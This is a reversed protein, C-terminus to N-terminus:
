KAQFTSKMEQLNLGMHRATENFPQQVVEAVQKAILLQMIAQQKESAQAHNHFCTYFVKGKGISAVAMLPLGSRESRMLVKGNTVDMLESWGNMDFHVETAPGIIGRLDPDEVFAVTHGRSGTNGAFDFAGPFAAVLLSSALDSAYVVGGNEVYRRLYGIEIRTPTGCNIFLIEAEKKPDYNQYDFDLDELIQGIDDYYPDTAQLVGGKKIKKIGMAAQNTNLEGPKPMNTKFLATEQGFTMTSALCCIFILPHLMRNSM